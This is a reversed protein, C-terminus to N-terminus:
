ELDQLDKMGQEIEDVSRKDVYRYCIYGAMMGVSLMLIDFVVMLLNRYHHHILFVSIFLGLTLFPTCWIEIRLGRKYSLVWRHLELLTRTALNFKYLVHINWLSYLILLPFVIYFMWLLEQRIIVRTAALPFLFLMGTLVFVAIVNAGILRDRASLTRKEIMRKIAEHNIIENKKLQESLLNWQNKLEELEM